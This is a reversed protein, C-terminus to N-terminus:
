AKSFNTASKWWSSPWLYTLSYSSKLTFSPLLWKISWTVSWSPKSVSCTSWLHLLPILCISVFISDIRKLKNFLFFDHLKFLDNQQFFIIFVIFIRNGNIAASPTNGKALLESIYFFHILIVWSIIFDFSNRNLSEFRIFTNSIEM